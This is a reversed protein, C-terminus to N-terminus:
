DAPCDGREIKQILNIIKNVFTGPSGIEEVHRYLKEGYEKQKQNNIMLNKIGEALGDPDNMKVLIGSEEQIIYEKTTANDTTIVPKCMLASLFLVILGAPAETNLPLAVVSCARVSELFEAFPIDYNYSINSPFDSGLTDKRPGVIVFRIEPLLYAAKVMTKWDRGNMGGCFVYGNGEEFEKRFKGLSGYCDHIVSFEKAPLNFIDQYIGTLSSSAVTPHVYRSGLMIKFFMRKLISIFDRKDNFMINIIIVERNMFLFKSLMFVYLGLVDLYCIIIDKNKGKTLGKLALHIYQRHLLFIRSIRSKSYVRTSKDLGIFRVPIGRTNFEEVLWDKVPSDTLFFIDRKM